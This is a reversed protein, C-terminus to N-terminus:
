FQKLSQCVIEELYNLHKEEIDQHCGILFAHEMIEDTIPYRGTERRTSSRVAPQKLINGTFVPRTQIQRRELYM